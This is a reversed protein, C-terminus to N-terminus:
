MLRLARNSCFTIKREFNKIRNQKGHKLLCSSFLIWVLDDDCDRLYAEGQMCLRCVQVGVAHVAWVLDQISQRGRLGTMRCVLTWPQLALTLGKARDSWESLLFLDLVESGALPTPPLDTARNYVRHHSDTITLTYKWSFCCWFHFFPSSDYDEIYLFIINIYPGSIEESKM